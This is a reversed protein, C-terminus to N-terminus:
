LTASHQDRNYKRIELKPLCVNSPTSRQIEKTEPGEKIYIGSDHDAKVRLEILEDSLTEREDILTDISEATESVELLQEVVRDYKAWKESVRMQCRQRHDKDSDLAARLDDLASRLWHLQANKRHLLKDIRQIAESSGRDIKRSSERCTAGFFIYRVQLTTTSQM